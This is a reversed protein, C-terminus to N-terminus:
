QGDALESIAQSLNREFWELTEPVPAAQRGGEFIFCELVNEINRGKLIYVSVESTYEREEANRVNLEPGRYDLGLVTMEDKRSALVDSLAQILQEEFHRM